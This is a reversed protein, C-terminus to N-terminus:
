TLISFFFLRRRRDSLSNSAIHINGRLSIRSKVNFAGPLQISKEKGRIGQELQMQWVADKRAADGKQKVKGIAEWQM